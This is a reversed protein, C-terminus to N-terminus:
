PIPTITGVVSVITTKDDVIVISQRDKMYRPKEDQTWDDFTYDEIFYELMVKQKMTKADLYIAQADAEDNLLIHFMIKSGSPSWFIRGAQTYSTSQFAVSRESDTALNRIGVRGGRTYAIESMDPSFAFAICGGSVLDKIVGTKVDLSQLDNGDFLTYWGDYGWGYYFYLVSSDPTWGYIRLSPSPDYTPVDGQYPISWIVAGTVDQVEIAPKGSSHGEWLTLAVWKGDPSCIAQRSCLEQLSPTSTAIPTASPNPTPTFTVVAPVPSFPVPTATVTSLGSVYTPTHITQTASIESLPVCASALILFVLSVAVLSSRM